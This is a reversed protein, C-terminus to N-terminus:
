CQVRSVFIGGLVRLGGTDKYPKQVTYIVDEDPTPPNLREVQESLTEGTCILTEGNLLGADM